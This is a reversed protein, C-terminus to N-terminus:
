LGKWLTAASQLKPSKPSLKTSYNKGWRTIAVPMFAARRRAEVIDLFSAEGTICYDLNFARRRKSTRVVRDVVTQETDIFIARPNFTSKSSESFVVSKDSDIASQGDDSVDHEKAFLEWLSSGM